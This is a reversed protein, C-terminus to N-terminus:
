SAGADAASGHPQAALAALAKAVGRGIDPWLDIQPLTAPRTNCTLVKAAGADLLMRTTSEAHVAHVAICVARPIDLGALRQVAVQMTHGSSVIDDLLVPTRGAVEVGGLASADIEVDRDGLRRKRMVRWPCGVRAAVSSVWQESEEDPGIILPGAVEARIWAAIAEASSVVHARLTYIEDLSAYRHLHPDVTVLWDASASLLRAFSRSTIAEGPRFRTDQRMYPLYPLVLGVQSAGLDRLADALFVLMVAQEDPRLMQSVVICARASVDADVRLYIEQDPFRRISLTGVGAGILDALRAAAAESGPLAFVVPPEPMATTTDM